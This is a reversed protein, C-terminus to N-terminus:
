SRTIKVGTVWSAIGYGASAAIGVLLAGFPLVYNAYWGMINFDTSASLFYVVLLTIITTGLGSIIVLPKSQNRPAKRLNIQDLPDSMPNTSRRGSFLTPM